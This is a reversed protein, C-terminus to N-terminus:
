EEKPKRFLSVLIPKREQELLARLGNARTIQDIVELVASHISEQFMLASDLRHYTYPRFVQMIIIGLFPIMLFLKWILGPAEGLWWSIFFGNSFPGCCIDFCLEKRQVRFYERKATFIGGERYLVRSRNIKSLKRRDIAQDLLIYFHQPSEQLGEFFHHWHSFILSVKRAM